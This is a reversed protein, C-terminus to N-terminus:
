ETSDNQEANNGGYIRELFYATPLKGAFTLYGKEALEANLDRCVKYAHSVSIDCAEAIEAANIFQKKM